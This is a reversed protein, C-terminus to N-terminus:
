DPLGIALSPRLGLSALDCLAREPLRYATLESSLLCLSTILQSVTSTTRNELRNPMATNQWGIGGLLSYRYGQKGKLWQVIQGIAWKVIQRILSNVL